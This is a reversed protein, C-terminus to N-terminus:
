RTIDTLYYTNYSGSSDYLRLKTDSYYFGLFMYSMYNNVKTIKYRLELNNSILNDNKYVSYDLKKDFVTLNLVNTDVLQTSRFMYIYENSIFVYNYDIDIRNTNFYLRNTIYYYETKNVIYTIDFINTHYYHNTYYRDIYETNTIHKPSCCLMLILYFLSLIYLKYSM